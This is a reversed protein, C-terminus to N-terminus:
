NIYKIITDWITSNAWHNSWFAGGALSYENLLELRKAMSTEDELWM